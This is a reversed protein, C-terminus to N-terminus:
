CTVAAELILALAISFHQRSLWAQTHAPTGTRCATGATQSFSCLSVSIRGDMGGMCPNVRSAGFHLPTIRSKPRNVGGDSLTLSSFCCHHDGRYLRSCTIVRIHNLRLTDGPLAPKRRAPDRELGPRWGQPSSLSAPLTISSGDPFAQYFVIKFDGLRHPPAQDHKGKTILWRNPWSNEGPQNHLQQMLEGGSQPNACIGATNRRLPEAVAPTGLRQSITQRGIRLLILLM